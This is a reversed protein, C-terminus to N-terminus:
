EESEKKTVKIKLQKEIKDFRSNISELGSLVDNKFDSLKVDIDNSIDQASANINKTQIGNSIEYTFIKSTGDHQLRKTYITKGDTSPFFMISGDMMVDTAKVSEISDVFKGNLTTQYQQSQPPMYMGIQPATQQIIPPMTQAYQNQLQALRDQFPQQYPQGYSQYNQM